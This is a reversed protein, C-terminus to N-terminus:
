LICAIVLLINLYTEKTADNVVTVIWIRIYESKKGRLRLQAFQTTSKWRFNQQTSQMYSMIKWVGRYIFITFFICLFIVRKPLRYAVDFTAFRLITLLEKKEKKTM